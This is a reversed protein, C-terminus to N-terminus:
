AYRGDDLPGVDGARCAGGGRCRMWDNNQPAHCDERSDGRVDYHSRLALHEFSLFNIKQCQSVIRPASILEGSDAAPVLHCVAM